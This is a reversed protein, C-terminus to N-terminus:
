IGLSVAAIAFAGTLGFMCIVVVAVWGEAPTWDEPQRKPDKRMFSMVRPGSAPPASSDSAGQPNRQLRERRRQDIEPMEGNVSLRAM